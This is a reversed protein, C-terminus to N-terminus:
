IAREQEKIYNDLIQEINDYDWYAIRVLTWNYQKAYQNKIQDNQQIIKFQAQVQEESMKGTFDVPEFHQIGDYEIWIKLSPIIFDPRLVGGNIGVLHNFYGMNYIYEINLNDLYQAVRKEGKTIKCKPCGTGKLLEIPRVEWEYGDLKCRCLIKTNATEYTGLVEINNNIQALEKIFEEHTKQLNGACKPCGIGRLLSSPVVEWEYGCIKCKCKIKTRANAYTGLIEINENIKYLAQIFQEHTKALKEGVTKRGCIPCGHGKLLRNPTSEWEHGCVKCKCKIKTRDNVYTGLIEIDPNIQHLEEIFQEHTKTQKQTAIKRGCIPCGTGSLLSAPTSEWIHGDITCRCKIKLHGGTYTELVEIDPNIQKLEHLFQEHTKRHQEAHKKRACKLCGHGSLLNGPTAEWEYGDIKCKCKIETSSNVYTGLIEIDSNIKKMRNIFEEHTLKINGACKPCGTRMGLLSNPTVEWEYGCVKCRCKIKTSYNVYTGLIEIDQAHKNQKNFKEMFEEHTLKRAM